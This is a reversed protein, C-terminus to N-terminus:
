EVYPTVYELEEHFGICLDDGSVKKTIPESDDHCPSLALDYAVDERIGAAILGEWIYLAGMVSRTYTNFITTYGAGSPTGQVKACFYDRWPAARNYHSDGLGIGARKFASM